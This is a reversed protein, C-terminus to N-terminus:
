ESDGHKHKGRMKSKLEHFKTRQEQTLIERILLMTNFQQDKFAQKSKIMKKRLSKLKSNTAISGLADHFAKKDAKSAKKLSEMKVQKSDRIAKIENKQEETLDLQRFIKMFGKKGGGHGKSFAQSSFSMIVVLILLNKM